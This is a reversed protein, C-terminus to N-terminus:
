SQAGGEIGRLELEDIMVVRLAEHSRITAAIEDLTSKSSGYLAIGGLIAAIMAVFAVPEFQVIGAITLALALGGAATAVKAVLIAKRCREAAESLREIDAELDTIQEHQDPM